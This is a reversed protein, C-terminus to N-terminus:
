PHGEIGAPSQNLTDLCGADTVGMCRAPGTDTAVPSLFIPRMVLVTGGDPLAVHDEHWGIPMRHAVKHVPAPCQPATRCSMVGVFATYCIAIVLMVRGFTVM